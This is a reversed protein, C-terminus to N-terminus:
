PHGELVPTLTFQGPVAALAAWTRPAGNFSSCGSSGPFPHEAPFHPAESVLRGQHHPQAMGM